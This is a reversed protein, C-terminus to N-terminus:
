DYESPEVPTFADPTFEPEEGWPAEFEEGPDSEPDPRGMDKM